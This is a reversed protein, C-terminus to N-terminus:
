RGCHEENVRLYEVLFEDLHQSVSSLIYAARGGHTGAGGSIWTPAWISEGSALDFVWKHYEVDISYARGVVNVNVFLFPTEAADYLRASRLRSEAATQLQAKTLRIEVADEDDDLNGVVLDMPKCENFLKFRAISEEKQAHAPFVLLVTFAVLGVIQKM